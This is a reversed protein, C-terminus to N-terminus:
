ALISQHYQLIFRLLFFCWNGSCTEKTGIRATTQTKDCFHEDPPPSRGWCAHYRLTIAMIFIQPSLCTVVQPLTLNCPNVLKLVRAAQQKYVIWNPQRLSLVIRGIKRIRKATFNWFGFRFSEVNPLPKVLGREMLLFSLLSSLSGPCKTIHTVEIGCHRPLLVQWCM